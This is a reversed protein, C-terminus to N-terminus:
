NLYYQYVDCLDITITELIKESTLHPVINFTISFDEINSDDWYYKKEIVNVPYNTLTLLYGTIQDFSVQRM